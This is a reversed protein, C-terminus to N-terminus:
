PMARWVTSPTGRSSPRRQDTPIIKGLRRLESFRPRITLVDMGLRAACEDATADGHRCLDVHVLRQLAKVPVSEGAARSASDISREKFGASLPYPATNGFLDADDSPSNCRRQTDPYM